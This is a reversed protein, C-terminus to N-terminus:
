PESWVFGILDTESVGDKFVKLVTSDPLTVQDANSITVNDDHLWYFNPVEGAIVLDDSYMIVKFCLLQTEIGLAGPNCDKMDDYDHMQFQRDVVLTDTLPDLYVMVTNNLAEAYWQSEYGYATNDSSDTPAGGMFSFTQTSYYSDLNGVTSVYARGSSEQVAAWYISEETAVIHFDATGAIWTSPGSQIGETAWNSVRNGTVLLQDSDYGMLIYVDPVDTTGDLLQIYFERGSEIHRLQISQNGSPYNLVTWSAPLGTAVTNIGEILSEAVSNEYLLTSIAM